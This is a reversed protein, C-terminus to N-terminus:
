IFRFVAFSFPVFVVVVFRILTTVIMVRRKEFVQRMMVISGIRVERVRNVNKPVRNRTRIPQFSYFRCLFRLIRRVIGRRMIVFTVFCQDINTPESRMMCGIQSVDEINNGFAIALQRNIKELRQLSAIIEIRLSMEIVSQNWKSGM